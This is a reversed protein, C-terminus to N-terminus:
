KKLRAKGVQLIAIEMNKESIEKERQSIIAQWGEKNKILSENLQREEKLETSLKSIKNNLQSLKQELKVKEKTVFTLREDKEQSEEVSTKTVLQLEELQRKRDEDLRTIKEEYFRCFLFVPLDM